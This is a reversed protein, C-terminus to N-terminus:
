VDVYSGWQKSDAQIHLLNPFNVVKEGLLFPLLISAWVYSTWDGQSFQTNRSQHTRVEPYCM